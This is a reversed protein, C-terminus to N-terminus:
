NCINSFMNELMYEEDYMIISLGKDTFRSPVIAFLLRYDDIKM